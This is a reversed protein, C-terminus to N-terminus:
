RHLGALLYNMFALRPASTSLRVHTRLYTSREAGDDGRAVSEVEASAKRIGRRASKSRSTRDTVLLYDADIEIVRRGPRDALGRRRSRDTGRLGDRGEFTGGDFVITRRGGLPFAGLDAMPRVVVDIELM